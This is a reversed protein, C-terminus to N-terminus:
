LNEPNGPLQRVTFACTPEGDYCGHMQNGLRWYTACIHGARTVAEDCARDGEMWWLTHRKQGRMVAFRNRDDRYYVALVAGDALRFYYWTNGTRSASIEAGTMQRAGQAKLEALTPAKQGQASAAVAFTHAFLFCM